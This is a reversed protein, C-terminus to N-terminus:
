DSCQAMKCFFSILDQINQLFRCWNVASLTVLFRSFLFDKLFDLSHFNTEPNHVYVCGELSMLGLLLFYRLRVDM